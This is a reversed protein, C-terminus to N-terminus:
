KLAPIRRPLHKQLASPLKHRPSSKAEGKVALKAERDAVKNGKVEQHGAIWRVMVDERSSDKEEHLQHMLNRFHLLLYHGPKATPREGSRIVVQNDVLISAPFSTEPRTIQLRAALILGVAEAKFVTHHEASGLYYCLTAVHTHDIYLVVSTGILGDTCSGDTFVLMQDGLKRFDKLSVEKNDVIKFACLTGVNYWVKHGAPTSLRRYTIPWSPDPTLDLDVRTPPGSSLPLPSSLFNTRGFNIVM